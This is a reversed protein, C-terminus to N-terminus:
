AAAKFLKTRSLSDLCAKVITFKFDTMADGYHRAINFLEGSYSPLNKSILTYDKRSIPRGLVLRIQNLQEADFSELIHSTWQANRSGYMLMNGDVLQNPYFSVGRGNGQGFFGSLCRGVVFGSMGKGESTFYDITMDRQRLDVSTEGYCRSTNIYPAINNTILKVLDNKTMTSLTKSVDSLDKCNSPLNILAYGAYDNM